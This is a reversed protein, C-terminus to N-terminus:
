WAEQMLDFMALAGPVATPLDSRHCKGCPAMLAQRAAASPSECIPAATEVTSAREPDPAHIEGAGLTGAAPEEARAPVTSASAPSAAAPEDPRGKKEVQRPSERVGCGGGAVGLALLLVLACVLRM